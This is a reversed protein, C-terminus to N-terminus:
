HREDVASKAPEIKVVQLGLRMAKDRVDAESKAWTIKQAGGLLTVRWRYLNDVKAQTTM